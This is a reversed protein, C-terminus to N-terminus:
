DDKFLCCCVNEGNEGLFALFENALSLWHGGAAHEDSTIRERTVQQLLVREGLELIQISKVVGSLGTSTKGLSELLLAGGLVKRNDHVM